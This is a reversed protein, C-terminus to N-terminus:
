DVASLWSKLQELNSDAALEASAGTVLNYVTVGKGTPLAFETEITAYSVGDTMQDMAAKLAALMEEYKQLQDVTERLKFALRKGTTLDITINNIAM